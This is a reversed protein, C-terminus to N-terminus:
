SKAPKGALETRKLTGGQVRTPIKVATMTGTESVQEQSSGATNTAQAKGIGEM